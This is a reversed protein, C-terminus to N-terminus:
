RMRRRLLILSGLGLLLVSSPEPIATYSINDLGVDAEGLPNSPNQDWWRLQVVPAEVNDFNIVGTSGLAVDTVQETWDLGSNLSYELLGSSSPQGASAVRLVLSNLQVTYGDAATFTITGMGATGTNYISGGTAGDGEPFFASAWGLLDGSYTVTVEPTSGTIAPDTQNEMVMFDTVNDFTILTASANLAAAGAFGFVLGLRVGALMIQRTIMSKM